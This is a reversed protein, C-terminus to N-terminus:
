ATGKSFHRQIKSHQMSLESKGPTREGYPQYQERRPKRMISSASLLHTWPIYINTGKVSVDVYEFLV